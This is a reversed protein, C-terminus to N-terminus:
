STRNKQVAALLRFPFHSFLPRADKLQKGKYFAFAEGYLLELFSRTIINVNNKQISLM